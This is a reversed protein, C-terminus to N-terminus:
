LRQLIDQEFRALFEEQAETQVYSPNIRRLRAIAEQASLGGERILWAALMTGTRGIGAKCHVALVEGADTLRQMRRVLMYAQSISPAERDFIPLHINRLGAERLADQDLDKETLTILTTVGVRVLLELDYALPYVIGPEPCAGIQNPVIWRFGAPGRYESMMARGVMATVEVGHASTPPLVEATHGRGAPGAPMPSAGAKAPPVAAVPAAAPEPASVTSPETPMRSTSSAAPAAPPAAAEAEAVFPAIAALAAAPLPPPPTVEPALDEPRADPSPVSLSGSATFQAVWENLPPRAFFRAMDTHALVRGGGILLLRQGCRRAQGQHHLSVMLRVHRGLEALWDVLPNAAADDLGYTPEDVLLLPPRTLAHSLINVARQWQVPLDWVRTDPGQPVHSALGHCSLAEAALARWEQGPRTEHRRQQWVLADGVTADLIAAHQQVLLPRHGDGVSRGCLRAQGWQRFLANADNLGALSRMLTSKGTKVPGMLVDIGDAPLSLNMEALIVRRGFSVGYSDLELVSATGDAHVVPGTPAAM